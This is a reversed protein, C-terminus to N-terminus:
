PSSLYLCMLIEFLIHCVSIKLPQRGICSVHLLEFEPIKYKRNIWVFKLIKTPGRQKKIRTAIESLKYKENGQATNGGSFSNTKNGRATSFLCELGFTIELKWVLRYTGNGPQVSRCGRTEGDRGYEANQPSWVVNISSFAWLVPENELKLNYVPFIATAPRVATCNEARIPANDALVKGAWLNQTVLQHVGLM